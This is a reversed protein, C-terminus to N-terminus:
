GSMIPRISAFATPFRCRGKAGHACSSARPISSWSPIWTRVKPVLCSTSMARSTGAVASYGELTMPPNIKIEVQDVPLLPAANVLKRLAETDAKQEPTLQPPQNQALAPTSILVVIMALVSFRVDSMHFDEGNMLLRRNKSPSWSTACCPAPSSSPGAMRKVGGGCLAVM